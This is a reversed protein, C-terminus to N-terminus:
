NHAITHIASLWKLSILEMMNFIVTLTLRGILGTKKRM